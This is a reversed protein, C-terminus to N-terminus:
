RHVGFYGRSSTVGNVRVRAAFYTIKARRGPRPAAYFAKYRGSARKGEFQHREVVHFRGGSCVEIRLSVPFHKPPGPTVLGKYELRAGKAFVRVSKHKHCFRGTHQTSRGKVKFTISKPAQAGVPASAILVLSATLALASRTPITRSLM